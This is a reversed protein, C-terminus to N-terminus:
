NTELPRIALRSVIRTGDGGSRQRFLLTKGPQPGCQVPLQWGLCLVINSGRTDLRAQVDAGTIVGVSPLESIATMTHKEVVRIVYCELPALDVLGREVDM